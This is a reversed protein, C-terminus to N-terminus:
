ARAGQSADRGLIGNSPAALGPETQWQSASSLFKALSSANVAPMEAPTSDSKATLYPARGDMKQPMAPNRQAPDPQRGLLANLDEESPRKAVLETPTKQPMLDNLALAGSDNLTPKTRQVAENSIQLVAPSVDGAGEFKKAFRDYIARYSVPEGKAYFIPRNADAANRMAPAAPAWDPKM